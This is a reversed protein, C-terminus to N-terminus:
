NRTLAQGAFLLQNVLPSSNEILATTKRHCADNIQKATAITQICIIELVSSYVTQSIKTKMKSFDNRKILERLQVM